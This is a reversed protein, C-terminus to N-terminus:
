RELFIVMGGLLPAMCLTALIMLATIDDVASASNPANYIFALFPTSILFIKCSIPCGWGGVGTCVSLEVASPIILERTWGLRVFTISM